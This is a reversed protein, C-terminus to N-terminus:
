TLPTTTKALNLYFIDTIERNGDDAIVDIDYVGAALDDTEQIISVNGGSITPSLTIIDCSTKLKMASSVTWDGDLVINNGDVDQFTVIIELKQGRKLYITDDPM